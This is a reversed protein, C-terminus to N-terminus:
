ADLSLVNVFAREQSAQIPMRPGQDGQDGKDGKPGPPGRLRVNSPPTGTFLLGGRHLTLSTLLNSMIKVQVTDPDASYDALHSHHTKKDMIPM